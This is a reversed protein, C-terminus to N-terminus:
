DFKFSFINKSNCDIKCDGGIYGVKCWYRDNIQFIGYDRSGNSNVPGVVNSNFNSEHKALCVWDPLSAMSFGANKMARAFECKSYIKAEITIATFAIIFITIFFKM